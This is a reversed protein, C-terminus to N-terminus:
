QVKRYYLGRTAGEVSRGELFGEEIKDEEERSERTFYLTLFDVGEMEEQRDAMSLPVANYLEM